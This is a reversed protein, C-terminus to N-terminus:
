DNRVKLEWLGDSTRKIDNVNHKYKVDVNQNKLHDFLM